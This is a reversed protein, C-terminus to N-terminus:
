KVHVGGERVLMQTFLDKYQASAGTTAMVLVNYRDGPGPEELLVATFPKGSDLLKQLKARVKDKTATKRLGKAVTKKKATM